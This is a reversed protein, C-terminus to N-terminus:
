GPPGGPAGEPSSLAADIMSRLVADAERPLRARLRERASATDIASLARIAAERVATDDHALLPAVDRLADAGFARGLALAGERAIMPEPARAARRLLARSAPTAFHGATHVARIRIAGLQDRDDAIRALLPVVAPGLARWEAPTPGEEFGGLMAILARVDPLQATPATQAHAPTALVVLSILGLAALPV